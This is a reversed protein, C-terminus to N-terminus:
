DNKRDCDSDSAYALTMENLGRQAFLFLEKTQKEKERDNGIAMKTSLCILTGTLVLFVFFLLVLIPSSSDAQLLAFFGFGVGIAGLASSFTFAKDADHPQAYTSCLESLRSLLVWRRKSNEPLSLVLDKLTNSESANVGYIPIRDMIIGAGQNAKGKEEM